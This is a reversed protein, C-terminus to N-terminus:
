ASIKNHLGPTLACMNGCTPMYTAVHQWTNGCTTLM